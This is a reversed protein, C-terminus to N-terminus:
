ANKDSLGILTLHRGIHTILRQYYQEEQVKLTQYLESKLDNDRLVYGYTIHVLQRSHDNHLYRILDEDKVEDLPMVLNLDATVHYFSKAEEFHQLAISHIKRYLAPNCEAITGLAELWNTGSTKIHLRGKTHKGIMPFVSFKDSGSHISLKYGFYDAIAAHQKLQVELESSNGIYDIGKQFEGVFRPALSTIDVKQEILEMAVFLHGLATTVSETEDISLEFDVAHDAKMLYQHYVEGVFEIAKHYILVCEALDEIRYSFQESSISFVHNLYTNELRNRYELPLEEYLHLKEDKSLQEIGRGIKESCDLTIMTYGCSLADQIDDLQKLHDGDAGFGGRYGEQFVAFCVDDLVQEYNRGTLDLERKSQQALIPKANSKQLCRIHGPSALGLRDGVGFTATQKGFASPVTYPLHKNLVLRNEHTLPCLKLSASLPEGVLQSFLPGSGAALIKKIGKVKCMQLQDGQVETLSASYEKIQDPTVSFISCIAEKYLPLMM